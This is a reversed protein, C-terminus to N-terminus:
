WEAPLPRGAPEFTHCRNCLTLQWRRQTRLRGPAGCRECTLASETEASDILAQCVQRVEPRFEAYFRLTGLKEKVQLLEYERDLVLLERHLRDIIASWGSGPLQRLNLEHMRRSFDNANEPLQRFRLRAAWGPDDGEM